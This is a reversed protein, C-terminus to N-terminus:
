DPKLNKLACLLTKTQALGVSRAKTLSIVTLFYDSKARMHHCLRYILGKGVM